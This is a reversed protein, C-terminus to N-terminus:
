PLRGTRALRLFKEWRFLEFKVFLFTLTLFGAVEGAVNFPRHFAHWWRRWIPQELPPFVGMFPWFFAELNFIWVRDLLLHGMWCGWYIWPNGLRRRQWLLVALVLVGCLLSHAYVRTNNGLDNPYLLGLPKDLLDPGLAFLVALRLDVKKSVARVVGATLGVHGFFIM